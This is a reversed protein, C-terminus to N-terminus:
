ERSAKKMSAPKKSPSFSRKALSDYFSVSGERSPETEKEDASLLFILTGDELQEVLEWGM